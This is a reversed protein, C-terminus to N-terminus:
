KRGAEEAKEARRVAKADLVEERVTPDLVAKASIVEEHGEGLTSLVLDRAAHEFEFRSSGNQMEAVYELALTHAAEFFDTKEKTSVDSTAVPEFVRITKTVEQEKIGM